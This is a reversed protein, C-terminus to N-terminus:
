RPQLHTLSNFLRKWSDDTMDGDTKAFLLTGKSNMVAVQSKAESPRTLSVKGNANEITSYRNMKEILKPFYEPIDNFQDPTNQQSFTIYRNSFSVVFSLQKLSPNYTLTKQDLKIEESTQPYFVVFNAQRGIEVPIVPRGRTTLVGVLLVGGIVLVGLATWIWKRNLETM